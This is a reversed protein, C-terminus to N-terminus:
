IVARRILAEFLHASSRRVGVAKQVGLMLESFSKLYLAWSRSAHQETVDDYASLVGALGSSSSGGFTWEVARRHGVRIFEHIRGSGRKPGEISNIRSELSAQQRPPLPGKWSEDVLLLELFARDSESRRVDPQQLYAQFSTQAARLESAFAPEGDVWRLAVARRVQTQWLIARFSEFQSGLARFVELQREALTVLQDLENKATIASSTITRFAQRARLEVM